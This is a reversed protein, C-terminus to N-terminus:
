LLEQWDATHIHFSCWSPCVNINCIGRGCVNVYIAHLFSLSSQLQMPAFYRVINKILSTRIHALPIGFVFTSCIGLLLYIHVRFCIWLSVPLWANQDLIAEKSGIDNSRWVTADQIRNGLQWGGMRVGSKGLVPSIWQDQWVNGLTQVREEFELLIPLWIAYKQRWAM